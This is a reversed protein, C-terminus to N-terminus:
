DVIATITNNNYNKNEQYYKTHKIKILNTFLYM